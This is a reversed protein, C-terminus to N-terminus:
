LALLIFLQECQESSAVPLVEFMETAGSVQLWFTSPVLASKGGEKEKRGKRPNWYKDNNHQFTKESVRYSISELIVSFFM